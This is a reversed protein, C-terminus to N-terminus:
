RGKYQKDFEIYQEELNHTQIFLKVEQLQENAKQTELRQDQLDKRYSDIIDWKLNGPIFLALLIFIVCFVKEVKPIVIQKRNEEYTCTSSITNIVLTVFIHAGLSIAVMTCLLQLSQCIGCLYNILM